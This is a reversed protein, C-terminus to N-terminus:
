EEQEGARRGGEEGRQRMDDLGERLSMKKLELCRIM